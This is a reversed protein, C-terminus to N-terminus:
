MWCAVHGVELSKRDGREQYVVCLVQPIGCLSRSYQYSHLSCQVAPDLSHGGQQAERVVGGAVDHARRRLRVGATSAANKLDLTRSGRRSHVPAGAPLAREDGGHSRTLSRPSRSLLYRCALRKNSCPYLVQRERNHAGGGVAFLLAM